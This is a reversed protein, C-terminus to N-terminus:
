SSFINEMLQMGKSVPFPLRDLDLTDMLNKMSLGLETNGEILLKRQFFLTDPDVKRNALLLFYKMESRIIADAQYVNIMELTHGNYTYTWALGCDEIEIRISLGELFDLEGNDLAPQFIRLLVPTLLQKQFPFPMLHFPKGIVAPLKRVIEAKLQKALHQMSVRISLCHIM